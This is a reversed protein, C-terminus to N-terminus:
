KTKPKRIKRIRKPLYGSKSFMLKHNCNYKYYSVHPTFTTKYIFSLDENLYKKKTTKNIIIDDIQTYLLYYSDYITPCGTAGCTCTKNYNCSIAIM